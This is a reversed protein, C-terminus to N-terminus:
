VTLNRARLQLKADLGAPGNLWAICAAPSNFTHFGRYEGAMVLEWRKDGHPKWLTALPTSNSALLIFQSDTREQLICTM